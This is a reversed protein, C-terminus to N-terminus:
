SKTGSRINNFFERKAESAEHLRAVGNDSINFLKALDRHHKRYAEKQHEPADEDPAVPSMLFYANSKFNMADNSNRHFCAPSEFLEKARDCLAFGVRKQIDPNPILGLAKGIGPREATCIENIIHAQHAPTGAFDLASVLRSKVESKQNYVTSKAVPTIGDTKSYKWIDPDYKVEAQNAAKKAKARSLKKPTPTALRAATSTPSTQPEEDLEDMWETLKAKVDEKSWGVTDMFDHISMNTQHAKRKRQDLRRAASDSAQKLLAVPTDEDSDKNRDSMDSDSDDSDHAVDTNRRASPPSEEVEPQSEVESESSEDEAFDNGREGVPKTRRKKNRGVRAM